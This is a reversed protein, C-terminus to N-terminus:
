RVRGCFAQAARGPQRRLLAHQAHSCRQMIRALITASARAFTLGARDGQRGPRHALGSGTRKRRVEIEYYRQGDREYLRPTDRQNITYGALAANASSLVTPPVDNYRMQAQMRVVRGDPTMRVEYELGDVRKEVRYVPQGNETDTRVRRVEGGAPLVQGVVSQLNPPLSALASSQVNAGSVGGALRAGGREPKNEGIALRLASGGRELTVADEEIREVRYGFATDGGRVTRTEGLTLNEIVAYRESGLKVFGTFAIREQTLPQMPMPRFPPPTPAPPTPAPPKKTEAMPPAPPSPAEVLPRFLDRRAILDNDTPAPAPTASSETKEASALSVSADHRSSTESVTPTADRRMFAIGGASLLLAITVVILVDRYYRKLDM